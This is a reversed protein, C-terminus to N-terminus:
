AARKGEKKSSVIGPPGLAARKTNATHVDLSAKLKAMATTLARMSTTYASKASKVAKRAETRAKIAPAAAHHAKTLDALLSAPVQAKMEGLQGLLATAVTVPDGKKAHRVLLKGGGVKVRLFTVVMATALGLGAASPAAEAEATAETAVADGLKGKAANLATACTTVEDADGHLASDHETPVAALLTAAQKLRMAPNFPGPTTRKKKAKPEAVTPAGAQAKGSVEEGAKGPAPTSVSATPAENAAVATQTGAKSLELQPQTSASSEAVASVAAQEANSVPAEPTTTPHNTSASSRANRATQSM